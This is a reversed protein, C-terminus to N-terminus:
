LKTKSQKKVLIPLPARKPIALSTESFLASVAIDM